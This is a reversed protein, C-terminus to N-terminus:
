GKRVVVVEMLVGARVVWSREKMGESGSGNILVEHSPYARM